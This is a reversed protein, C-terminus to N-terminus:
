RESQVILCEDRADLLQAILDRAIAITEDVKLLGQLLIAVVLAHLFVVKAIELSLPRRLERFCLEGRTTRLLIEILEAPGFRLEGVGDGRELGLAPSGLARTPRRRM